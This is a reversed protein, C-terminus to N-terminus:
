DSYPMSPILWTQNEGVVIVICMKKSTLERLFYTKQLSANSQSVVLNGTRLTSYFSM